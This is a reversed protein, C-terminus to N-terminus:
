AHALPREAISHTHTDSTAAGRPSRVRYLALLVSLNLMREYTTQPPAAAGLTDDEGVAAEDQAGRARRRTVLRALARVRDVIIADQKDLLARFQVSSADVLAPAFAVATRALRVKEDFVPDSPVGSSLILM